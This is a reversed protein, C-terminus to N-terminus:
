DGRAVMINYSNSLSMIFAMSQNFIIGYKFFYLMVDQPNIIESNVVIGNIIKDIILSADVPPPPNNILQSAIGSPLKNRYHHNLDTALKHADFVTDQKNCIMDILHTNHPTVSNVFKTFEKKRANCQYIIDIRSLLHPEVLKYQRCSVFLHQLYGLIQHIYSVYRLALFNNHPLENEIEKGIVKRIDRFHDKLKTFIGKETNYGSPIKGGGSIIKDFLDVVFLRLITFDPKEELKNYLNFETYNNIFTKKYVDINGSFGIVYGLIDATLQNVSDNIREHKRAFYLDKLKADDLLIYHLEEAIIHGIEHYLPQWKCPNWLSDLPVNIVQHELKFLNVESLSVFGQWKSNLIRFLITSILYEMAKLSQQVGGKSKTFQGMTDEISGQTGNLRLEAGIKLKEAANVAQRIAETKRRAIRFKKEHQDLKKDKAINKICILNKGSECYVYNLYEHMDLFAECILNSRLLANFSNIHSALKMASSEDFREVLDKFDYYFVYHKRRVIGSYIKELVLRNYLRIAELGTAKYGKLNDFKTCNTNFKLMKKSSRIIENLKSVIDTKISIDDFTNGIVDNYNLIINCARLYRDRMAFKRFDVVDTDDFYVSESVVSSCKSESLSINSLIQTSTSIIRDKCSHRCKLLSDILLQWSINTNFRFSYDDKGISEYIKDVVVEDLCALFHNSVTSNTSINLILDVNVNSSLTNKCSPCKTKNCNICDPGFGFVSFSKTVVNDTDITHDLLTDVVDSLNDKLHIVILENWGLTGLTFSDDGIESSYKLISDISPDSLKVLKMGIAHQFELREFLNDTASNLAFAYFRSIKVVGDITGKKTLISDFDDSEYIHIIDYSGFCYLLKNAYLKRGTYDPKKSENALQNCIRKLDNMVASESGPIVQYLAIKIATSGISLDTIPKGSSSIAPCIMKKEM